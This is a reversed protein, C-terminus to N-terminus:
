LSCKRIYFTGPARLQGGRIDGTVFSMARHLVRVDKLDLM